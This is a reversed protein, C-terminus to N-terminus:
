GDEEEGFPHQVNINFPVGITVAYNWIDRMKDVPVDNFNVNVNAGGEWEDSEVGPSAKWAEVMKDWDFVYREIGSNKQIAKHARHHADSLMRVEDPSITNAPKRLYESYLARVNHFTLDDVHISAYSDKTGVYNNLAM